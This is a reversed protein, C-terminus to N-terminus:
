EWRNIEEVTKAPESLFEAFPETKQQLIIYSKKQQPWGALLTLTKPPIDTQM